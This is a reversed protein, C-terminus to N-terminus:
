FNFDSNPGFISNKKIHPPGQQVIEKTFIADISFYRNFSCVLNKLLISGFFNYFLTTRWDINIYYIAFNLNKPCQDDRAEFSIPKKYPAYLSGLNHEVYINAKM